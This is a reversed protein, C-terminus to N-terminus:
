LWGETLPREIGESVGIIQQGSCGELLGTVAADTSIGHGHLALVDAHSPTIEPNLSYLADAYEMISEADDQMQVQDMLWLVKEPHRIQLAFDGGFRQMLKLMSEGTDANMKNAMRREIAAKIHHATFKADDPNLFLDYLLASLSELDYHRRVLATGIIKLDEYRAEGNLVMTALSGLYTQNESTEKKELAFTRVADPAGPQNRDSATTSFMFSLLDSPKMGTELAAAAIASHDRLLSKMGNRHMFETVHETTRMGYNLLPLANNADVLALVAYFEEDTVSFRYYGRLPSSLRMFLEGNPSKMQSTPFEYSFSQGARGASKLLPLGTVASYTM